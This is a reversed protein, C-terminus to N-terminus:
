VSVCAKSDAYVNKIGNLLDRNVVYIKLAGMMADRDVLDYSKELDVYTVYLSKEKGVYKKSLQGM